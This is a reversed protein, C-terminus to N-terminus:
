IDVWGKCQVTTCQKRKNMENINRYLSQLKALTFELVTSLISRYSTQVWFMMITQCNFDVEYNWLELGPRSQQCEPSLRSCVHSLRAPAALSNQLVSYVRHHQSILKRQKNRRRSLFPSVSNEWYKTQKRVPAVCNLRYDWSLLCVTAKKNSNKFRM